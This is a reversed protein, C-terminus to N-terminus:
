FTISAKAPNIILTNTKNWNIGDLCLFIGKLDDPNLEITGSVSSYFDRLTFTLLTDSNKTIDFANVISLSGTQGNAAATATVSRTAETFLGSTGSYSGQSSDMYDGWKSGEQTITFTRADIKDISVTVTVGIGGGNNDDGDDGNDDDCAAMSFGIVAVIAIIGFLRVLPVKSKNKM